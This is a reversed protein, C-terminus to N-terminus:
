FNLPNLPIRVMQQLCAVLLAKLPVRDLVTHSIQGDLLLLALGHVQSWVGVAAVDSPGPSLIGAAQCNAVIQQVGDFSKRTMEVLAPYNKEQAVAGSFTIKFHAPDTMAFDIYGWACELLQRLPDDPYQKLIADIREYLLSFGQTAIAAVLAQKDAFHAYPAAHSVGVKAAVKRLSLGQVGTEALIEIGATILANKLDGHHYSDKTMTFIGQEIKVNYLNYCPIKVIDLDNLFPFVAKV